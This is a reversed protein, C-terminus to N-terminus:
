ISRNTQNPPNFEAETMLSPFPTPSSFFLIDLKLAPPNPPQGVGGNRFHNSPAPPCFNQYPLAHPNPSPLTRPLSFRLTFFERRPHFSQCHCGPHDVDRSFNQTFAVFYTNTDISNTPFFFLYSANPGQRLVNPALVGRM